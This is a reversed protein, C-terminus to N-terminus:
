FESNPPAFAHKIWEGAFGTRREDLPEGRGGPRTLGHVDSTYRKRMGGDVGAVVVHIHVRLRATRGGACKPVQSQGADRARAISSREGACVHRIRLGTGIRVVALTRQHVPVRLRAQARRHSRQRTHSCESRDQQTPITGHWRRLGLLLGVSVTAGAPDPQGPRSPPESVYRMM